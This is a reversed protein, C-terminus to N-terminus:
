AAERKLYKETKRYTRCKPDDDVPEIYGRYRWVGILKTTGANDYKKKSRRLDSVQDWTFIDSLEDLQNSPGRHASPSDEDGFEKAALEGFISFKCWMDYEFSWRCFEEIANSWKRGNMVYLLCAKRFAIEVGRLGIASYAKSDMLAKREYVLAVLRKALNKAQKCVITGEAQDLRDLYPKLAKDFKEDYIGFMPFDEVDEDVITSINMRSFTGNAFQGKYYLKATQPTTSVVLNLRLTAGGHCSMAGFREQGMEDTDFNRRVIETIDSKKGGAAKNLMELEPMMTFIAKNGALEAAKLRILLGQPTMDNYVDRVLIDKPREAKDKNAGKANNKEAWEEERLRNERDSEAFPKMISKVPYKICSKGSSSDAVLNNMLTAEMFTNNYYALKVGGMHAALAPFVATLIAPHYGRPAKSVLLKLPQPLTAPIPPQADTPADGAMSRRCETLATKLLSPMTVGKSYKVANQITQDVRAQDEGFNPILQSLWKPDNDCIHRLHCAMNYIFDNRNGHMPTGGLVKTLAEVIMSYPINEYTSPYLRTVEAQTPSAVRGENLGRGAEGLKPSSVPRGDVDLGRDAYAKRRLALEEDSLPAYWEDSTYLQSAADTIYIMREPTTCKEDYAVGLAKTYAKQAEEITMGVPIRIDLHIKGSASREVHLLHGQWVGEEQNILYARSLGPEVDEEKDIDVCTQFTFAEPIISAQQRHNDQFRFYHPCRIPLNAKLKRREDKDETQRILAVLSALEESRTLEFYAELSTEKVTGKSMPANLAPNLSLQKM